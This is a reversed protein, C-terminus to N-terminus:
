LQQKRRLTLISFDQAWSPDLHDFHFHDLNGLITILPVWLCKSINVNRGRQQSLTFASTESAKTDPGFNLVYLYVFVYIFVYIFLYIFILLIHIYIYIYTMHMYTIYRYIYIYMYIRIRILWAGMILNPMRSEMCWSPREGRCIAVDM